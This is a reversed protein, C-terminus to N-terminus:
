SSATDAIYAPDFSEVDDSWLFVFTGPNKTEAVAVSAMLGFGLGLSAALARHM